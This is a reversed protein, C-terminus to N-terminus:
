EKESNGESAEAVAVLTLCICLTIIWEEPFQTQIAKVSITQKQLAKGSKFMKVM